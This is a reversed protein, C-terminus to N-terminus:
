IAPKSTTPATSSSTSTPSCTKLTAPSSTPSTRSSSSKPTSAARNQPSRRHGQAAVRRRRERRVAGAAAPQQARRLRSRHHAPLWSRRAGAAFRPGFRHSRLWRHCCPRRGAEEPRRTRRASLPNPPLVARHIGVPAVQERSADKTIIPVGCLNRRSVRVPVTSLSARTMRLERTRALYSLKSRPPKSSAPGGLTVLKLFGVVGNMKPIPRSPATSASAGGSAHGCFGGCRRAMGSFSVTGM